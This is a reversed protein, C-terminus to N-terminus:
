CLQDASARQVAALSGQVLAKCLAPIHRACMVTLLVRQLPTVCAKLEARLNCATLEQINAEEQAAQMAFVMVVTRLLPRYAHDINDGDFM